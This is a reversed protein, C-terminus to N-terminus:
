ADPPKFDTQTNQNELEEIYIRGVYLKVASVILAHYESM